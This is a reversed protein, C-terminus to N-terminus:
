DKKFTYSSYDIDGKYTNLYLVGSMGDMKPLIDALVSLKNEMDTQEGLYVRVKEPKTLYLTVNKQDDYAIRDVPVQEKEIIHVLNLIELFVGKDEVPVTEFLVVHDFSFGEIVPINKMKESSSEVVYGDRDFFMYRSMYPFCGIIQKEYVTVKVTNLNVFELDYKMVFPVTKHNGRREDWLCRILGTDKEEPFLYKVLEESTCNENGEVIVNEVRFRFASLICVAMTLFLVPLLIIRIRRLLQKQKRKKLGPM